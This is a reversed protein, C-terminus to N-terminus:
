KAVEWYLLGSLSRRLRPATGESDKGDDSLESFQRRTDCIWLTTRDDTLNTIQM